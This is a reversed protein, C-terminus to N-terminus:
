RTSLFARQPRTLHRLAICEDSSANETTAFDSRELTLRSVIQFSTENLWRGKTADLQDAGKGENARFYGDLGLPGIQVDVSRM